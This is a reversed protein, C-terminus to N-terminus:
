REIFSISELDIQEEKLFNKIIYVHSLRGYDESFKVRITYTDDGSLVEYSSIKGLSIGAPFISSYGSTLIRAGKKINVHSPIEKLIGYKYDDGDWVLSGFYDRDEIKASISSNKHLV